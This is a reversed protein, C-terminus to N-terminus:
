VRNQSCRMTMGTLLEYLLCGLSWVDSPAGAGRVRRRDFSSAWTKAANAAELMEPSKAHLTGRDRSCESNLPVSFFYKSICISNAHLSAALGALLARM